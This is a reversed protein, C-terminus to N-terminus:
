LALGILVGIGTGLTVILLFFLASQVAHGSGTARAKYWGFGLAVLATMGYSWYQVDPLRLFVPLLPACGGLLFALGVEGGARIPNITIARQRQGTNWAQEREFRAGAYGGLAMSLSSALVVGLMVLLLHSAAISSITMITVLTTVLGDDLGLIVGSLSSQVSTRKKM